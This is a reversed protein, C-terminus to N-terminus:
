FNYYTKQIYNSYIFRIVFDGMKRGLTTWTRSDPTSVVTYFFQIADKVDTYMYGLNFLINWLIVSLTFQRNYQAAVVPNTVTYYCNFTIAYIM